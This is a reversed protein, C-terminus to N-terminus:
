VKDVIDPQSNEKDSVDSLEDEDEEDNIFDPIRNKSTSPKSKRDIATKNFTVQKGKKKRPRGKM